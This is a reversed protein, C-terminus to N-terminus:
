YLEVPDLLPTAMHADFAVVASTPRSQLLAASLTLCCLPNAPQGGTSTLGASLSGRFEKTLWREDLSGLSSFQAILPSGQFYPPFRERALLSQVRLHGYKRLAPGTANCSLQCISFYSWGPLAPVCQHKKIHSVIMLLM